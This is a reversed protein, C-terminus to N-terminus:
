FFSVCVCVGNHCKAQQKRCSTLLSHWIKQGELLPVEESTMLTQWPYVQRMLEVETFTLFVYFLYM